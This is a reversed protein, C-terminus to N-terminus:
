LKNIKQRREQKMLERNFTSKWSGDPTVRDRRNFRAMISLPPRSPPSCFSLSFSESPSWPCLADFLLPFSLSLSLSPLHFAFALSRCSSIYIVFQSVAEEGFEGTLSSIRKKKGKVDLYIVIYYARYLYFWLIEAFKQSDRNRCIWLNVHRKM